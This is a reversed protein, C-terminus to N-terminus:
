RRMSHSHRCEIPITDHQGDSSSGGAQEKREGRENMTQSPADGCLTHAYVPAYTDPDQVPSILLMRGLTPM